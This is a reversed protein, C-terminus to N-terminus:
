SKTEFIDTLNKIDIQYQKLNHSLIRNDVM